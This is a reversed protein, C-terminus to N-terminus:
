FLLILINTQLELKIDSQLLVLVKDQYDQNIVLLLRIKEKHIKVLMLELQSQDEQYHPRLLFVARCPMLAPQLAQVRDGILGCRGRQGQESM